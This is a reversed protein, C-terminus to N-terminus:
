GEYPLRSALVEADPYLLLLKDLVEQMATEVEWWTSDLARVALDVRAGDAGHAILEGDVLQTDNGLLVILQGTGVLSDGTTEFIEQYRSSILEHTVLRWRYGDIVQGLSALLESLTVLGDDRWCRFTLARPEKM